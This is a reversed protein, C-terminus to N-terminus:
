KKVTLFTSTKGPTSLNLTLENRAPDLRMGATNCADCQCCREDETVLLFGAALNIVNM